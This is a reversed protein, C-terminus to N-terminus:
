VLFYMSVHWLSETSLNSFWKQPMPSSDGDSMIGLSSFQPLDDIKVQRNEKFFFFLCYYLHFAIYHGIAFPFDWNQLAMLTFHGTALKGMPDTATQSEPFVARGTKGLRHHSVKGCKFTEWCISAGSFCFLFWVFCYSGMPVQGDRFGVLCVTFDSHLLGRRHIDM